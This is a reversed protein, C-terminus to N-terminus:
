FARAVAPARDSLGAFLAAERAFSEEFDRRMKLPLAQKFLKVAVSRGEPDLGRYVHSFGGEAVHREIQWTDALRVGVLGLPDGGAEGHGFLEDDSVFALLEEVEARVVADDGCVDDLWASLESPVLGVAEMFLEHVRQYTAADM